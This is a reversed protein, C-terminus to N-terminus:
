LMAAQIAELTFPQLRFASPLYLPHAPFGSRTIRLCQVPKGTAALMPMVKQVRDNAPGRDGVAGWAVCIADSGEVASQIYHDADPGVPFGARKLDAPDTARYAFLNVVALSDFSHAHAFTVARRITADDVSADATSPNLMCLLLRPGPGWRRLLWYRYTGCRSHIADRQATALINAASM